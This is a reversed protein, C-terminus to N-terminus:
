SCVEFLAHVEEEVVEASKAKFHVDTAPGCCGFGFTDEEGGGWNKWCACCLSAAAVSIWRAKRQVCGVVSGCWSMSCGAGLEVQGVAKGMPHWTTTGGDWGDCAPLAPVTHLSVLFNTKKVGFSFGVSM